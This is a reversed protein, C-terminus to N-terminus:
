LTTSVLFLHGSQVYITAHYNTKRVLQHIGEIHYGTLSASMPAVYNALADLKEESFL